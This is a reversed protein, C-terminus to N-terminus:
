RKARQDCKSSTTRLIRRGGGRGGLWQLVRRGGGRWASRNKLVVSARDVECLNALREDIPRLEGVVSLFVVPRAELLAGRPMRIDLYPGAIRVAVEDGVDFAMDVGLIAFDVPRSQQGIRRKSVLRPVEGLVLSPAPLVRQWVVACPSLVPSASGRM